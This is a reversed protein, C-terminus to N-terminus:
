DVCYVFRLKGTPTKDFSDSYVIDVCSFGFKDEMTKKVIDGVNVSQDLLHLKIILRKKLRHFVVQYQVVSPMGFFLFEFFEGNIIKGNPLEINDNDRGILSSLRPSFRGCSCPSMDINSALDGVKYRLFPMIYNNLNTVIIDNGDLEVYQNEFVIHLGNHAECETAIQSVERCGYSDFVKCGFVREIVERMRLHLVETSSVVAKPAHIYMGQQEVFCAVYYLSSAYGRLLAPKILNYHKMYTRLTSVDLDFTNLPLAGERLLNYLMKKFTIRQGIDRVAGWLVAEIDSEQAEPMYRWARIRAADAWLVYQEDQYFNLPVGTSGGTSNLELSSCDIGEIILQDFSGQIDAKTLVPLRTFEEFSIIDEPVLGLRKFMSRYYPVNDYAHRTLLKIKNWQFERIKELPWYQSELLFNLKERVGTRLPRKFWSLM